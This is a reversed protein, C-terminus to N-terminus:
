FLWIAWHVGLHEFLYLAFLPFAAGFLFRLIGNAMVTSVALVNYADLLFTLGSAFLITYGLGFIVSFIICVIWHVSPTATWAFGFLGIPLIIAGVTMVRMQTEPPVPLHVPTTSRARAYNKALLAIGIWFGIIM